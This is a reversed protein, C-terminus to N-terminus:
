KNEKKFYGRIYPRAEKHIDGVFCLLKENENTLGTFGELSSKYTKKWLTIIEVGRTGDENVTYIRVDPQNDKTKVNDFAIIRNKNYDHGTYYVTKKESIKRWLVFCEQLDFKEKENKKEEKKTYTM